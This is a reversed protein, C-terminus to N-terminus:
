KAGGSGSSGNPKSEVVPPPSPALMRGLIMPAMQAFMKNSELAEPTESEVAAAFARAQTDLTMRHVQALAAVADTLIRVSSTCANIAVQTETQRNDLAVQQARLMLELLRADRAAHQSAEKAIAGDDGQDDDAVMGEARECIGLLGGSRDVLELRTWDIRAIVALVAAWRKRGPPVPVENLLVEGRYARVRHPMHRVLEARVTELETENVSM